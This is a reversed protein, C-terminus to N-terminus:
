WRGSHESGDLGGFQEASCYLGSQSTCGTAQVTGGL